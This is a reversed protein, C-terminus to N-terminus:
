NNGNRKLYINVASTPKGNGKEQFALPRRLPRAALSRQAQVPCTTGQCGRLMARHGARPEPSPTRAGRSAARAPSDKNEPIVTCVVCEGPQASASRVSGAAHQAALGHRSPRLLHVLTIKKENNKKKKLYDRVHLLSPIRRGQLM